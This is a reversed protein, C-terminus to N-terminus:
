SQGMMWETFPKMESELIKFELLRFNLGVM